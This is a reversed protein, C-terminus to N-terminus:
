HEIVAEFWSEKDGQFGCALVEAVFLVYKETVRNVAYDVVEDQRSKANIRSIGPVRAIFFRQERDPDDSLYGGVVCIYAENSPVPQIVQKRPPSIHAAATLPVVFFLSLALVRTTNM